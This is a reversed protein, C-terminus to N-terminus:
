STAITAIFAAANTRFGATQSPTYVENVVRSTASDYTTIPTNDAIATSIWSALADVANRVALYEAAVDLTGDSYQEQAYTVALAGIDIIKQLEASLRALTELLDTFRRRPIDQTASNTSLTEVSSRVSLMFEDNEAFQQAMTTKFAPWAM